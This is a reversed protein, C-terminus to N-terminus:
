HVTLKSLEELIQMVLQRTDSGMNKTLVDPDREGNVMHRMIGGLRTMEGGAKSMQEAMDALMKLAMANGTGAAQILSALAPAAVSADPEANPDPLTAPDQLGRLIAEVIIGDEEDLGGLVAQDRKGDLIARIAAVLKGWGNQASIDLAKELQPRQAPNACTEVVKVILAAHTQIIQQHKPPLQAM